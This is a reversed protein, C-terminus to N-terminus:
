EDIENLIEMMTTRAKEDLIYHGSDEHDTFLNTGDSLWISLGRKKGDKLTLEVTYDAPRINLQGKDFVGSSLVNMYRAMEEQPLSISSGDSMQLDVGSIAEMRISHKKEWTMKVADQNQCGALLIVLFIFVLVMFRKKM